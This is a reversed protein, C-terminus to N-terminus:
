APDSERNFELIAGLRISGAVFGASHLIDTQRYPFALHPDCSPLKSEALGISKKWTGGKAKSHYCGARAATWDFEGAVRGACGPLKSGGTTLGTIFAVMYPNM